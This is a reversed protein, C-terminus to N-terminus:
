RIQWGDSSRQLRGNGELERLYNAVTTKSRGIERGIATLSADPNENLYILLVDL